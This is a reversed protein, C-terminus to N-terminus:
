VLGWDLDVGSLQLGPVMQCRLWLPPSSVPHVSDDAQFVQSDGGPTSASVRCALRSSQSPVAAIRRQRSPAACRCALPLQQSSVRCRHICRMHLTHLTHLMHLTHLTHPTHLPKSTRLRMQGRTSPREAADLLCCYCWKVCVASQPLATTYRDRGLSLKGHM